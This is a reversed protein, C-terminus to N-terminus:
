KACEITATPEIQGLNRRWGSGTDHDNTTGHSLSPQSWGRIHIMLHRRNSKIWVKGRMVIPLWGADEKPYVFGATSMYCGLGGLVEFLTLSM